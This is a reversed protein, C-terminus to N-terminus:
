HCINLDCSRTIKFWNLETCHGIDYEVRNVSLTYLYRYGERLISPEYWAIWQARGYITFIDLCLLILNIFVRCNSLLLRLMNGKVKLWILCFFIFLVALIFHVESYICILSYIFILSRDVAYKTNCVKYPLTQSILM